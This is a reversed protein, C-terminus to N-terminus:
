FALSDHCCAGGGDGFRFLRGAVFGILRHDVEGVAIDFSMSYLEADCAGAIDVDM